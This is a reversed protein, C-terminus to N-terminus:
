YRYIAAVGTKVLIREKELVTVSGKHKIVAEAIDDIIDDTKGIDPSKKEIEGTAHNFKGPLTRGAEILLKDIRGEVAALAVEKIDDSAMGRVVGSSFREIDKETKEIYRPEMAKWTEKRLEDASLSKPSEKVGPKELHPNKSIKEFQAHHETVAVLILPLGSPRSFNDYVYKDVYRFYKERDIDKESKSDGHGHFMPTGAAGGYSGYSLYADTQESGLVEELTTPDGEPMEFKEIGDRSGEYIDFSDMNLALIQYKDAIQFYRVLPKIHLSDAVICIEEVPMMLKYIICREPNALIALGDLTNNWFLRDDKISKLAEKIAQAKNEGTARDLL